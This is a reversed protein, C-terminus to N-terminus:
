CAPDDSGPGSRWCSRNAERGERSLRRGQSGTWNLVRCFSGNQLYPDVGSDDSMQFTETAPLFKKAIRFVALGHETPSRDHFHLPM